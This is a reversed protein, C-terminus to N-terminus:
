DREKEAVFGLGALEKSNLLNKLQKVDGSAIANAIKTKLNVGVSRYLTSNTLKSLQRFLYAGIVGEIAGGSAGGIIGGATMAFEKGLGGSQGTKRKVTEELVNDVNAWFSYEKNLKALDPNAKALEERIANSAEKKFDLETGEDLTKLFGNSKAVAKDWKRRLDLLTKNPIEDGFQSITDQLGQLVKVPKEDIIVGNVIFDNKREEFLDVLQKTKTSGKVGKTSIFEDIQQGAKELNGVVKKQLSELSGSVPLRDTLEPLIKQTAKKTVEKTPALIKEVTKGANKKIAKSAITKGPVLGGVGKTVTKALRGVPVVSSIQFLANVVDKQEQTMGAYIEDGKSLAKDVVSRADKIAKTNELPKVIPNTVTNLVDQTKEVAPNVLYQFPPNVVPAVFKDYAKDVVGGGMTLLGLGFDKAREGIGTDETFADSFRDWGRSLLSGEKQQPAKQSPIGGRSFMEQAGRLGSLMQGTEEELMVQAFPNEEQPSIMEEARLAAEFPNEEASAKPFFSSLMRDLESEDNIAMIEEPTKQIPGMKKAQAQLKQQEAQQQVKQFDQQLKQGVQSAVQKGKATLPRNLYAQAATQLLQPIM